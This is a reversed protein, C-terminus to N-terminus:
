HKMEFSAVDGHKSTLSKPFARHKLYRDLFARSYEVISPHFTDRADTWALHGAGDFVVLYKPAPSQAYAGNPKTIFPTIGFDKTGGQYMVPADLGGLTKKLLFPNTYPSLALVAKVRPDKWKPWAGAVGLVTYGGLSHGVLGVHKWDFPPSKYHPDSSLANLLKEIDQDRDAYTTDSWDRADQFSVIPRTFRKGLRGTGICVSDHHNPAFIAYGAHSLAAMLFLSQTNCGHFGHSFILIPWPGPTGHKPLWTAVDLGAIQLKQPEATKEAAPGASAAMPSIVILLACLLAGARYKRIM